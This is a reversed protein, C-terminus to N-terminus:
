PSKADMDSARVSFAHALSADVGRPAPAAAPAPAAPEEPPLAAYLPREPRIM